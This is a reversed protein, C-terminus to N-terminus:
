LGGEAHGLAKKTEAAVLEAEIALVDESSRGTLKALLQPLVVERTKLEQKLEDVESALGEILEQVEVLVKPMDSLGQVAQLQAVAKQVGSAARGLNSQSM